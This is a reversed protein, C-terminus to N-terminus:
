ARALVAAKGVKKEVGREAGKESEYISRLGVAFAIPYYVYWQYAVSAFFSSVMYGIIGAQLGISWYYQWSYDSQEYMQRDIAGLKRLPSILLILYAAFPLWGLESSVQTYANHTEQEGVGVVVSNGIGIGIPNRLTVMISRELSERRQNSSGVRDLSSDFISLIRTGYNGPAFAIFVTAVAASILITKLRRSRGLKWVLFGAVAMFGLFGGRSQTVMCGAVMLAAVAFYVYRGLRKRTALGLAFAIPAFIALHLSVDNPNGFMGGYDVSVRYGETAFIGQRYLNISQYSLMVGIGISLTLLGWIRRKSDLLNVAVIFIAVIKVLNEQFTAWAIGPDKALPITLVAFVAIFLICKVETTLASLRGKASIQWLLFLIITVAAFVQAIGETGQLGPITEYPRFYLMVTFLFLGFYTLKQLPHEKKSERFTLTNEKNSRTQM